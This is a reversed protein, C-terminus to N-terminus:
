FPHENETNPEYFAARYFTRLNSYLEKAKKNLVDNRIYSIGFNEVISNYARKMAKRNGYDECDEDKPNKVTCGYGIVDSGCFVTCETVIRQKGIPFNVLDRTIKM